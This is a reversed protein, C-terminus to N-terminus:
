AIRVRLHGIVCGYVVLASYDRAIDIAVHLCPRLGSAVREAQGDAEAGEDGPGRAFPTRVVIHELVRCSDRPGEAVPVANRNGRQRGRLRLASCASDRLVYVSSRAPAIM